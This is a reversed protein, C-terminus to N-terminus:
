RKPKKSNAEIDLQDCAATVQQRVFEQWNINSHSQLRKLLKAGLLFVKQGREGKQKEPILMTANVGM